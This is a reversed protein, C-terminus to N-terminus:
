ERRKPEQVYQLALAAYAASLLLLGLPLLIYSAIRIGAAGLVLPLARNAPVRPRADRFTAWGLIILLVGFGEAGLLAVIPAAGEIATPRALRQALVDFVSLALLWAGAVPGLIQARRATISRFTLVAFFPLAYAVHLLIPLWLSPPSVRHAITLAGGLFLPPANSLWHALAASLPPASNWPGTITGVAALASSLGLLRPLFSRSTERRSPQRLAIARSSPQAIVMRRKRRMSEREMRREAYLWDDGIEDGSLLASSRTEDAATAASELNLSAAGNPREVLPPAQAPVLRLMSPIISSTDTFRPIDRRRSLDADAGDARVDLV